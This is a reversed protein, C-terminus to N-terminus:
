YKQTTYDLADYLMLIRRVQVYSKNHFFLFDRMKPGYLGHEELEELALMERLKKISSQVLYDISARDGIPTSSAVQAVGYTGSKFVMGKVCELRRFWRPRQEVESLVMALILKRFRHSYGDTKEFIYIWNEQGMDRILSMILDHGHLRKPTMLSRMLSMFAAAFLGSWVSILLDKNDPVLVNLYNRVVTAFFASLCIAMLSLAHYIMVLPWTSVRPEALTDRMARFSTSYLYFLLFLTLALWSNGGVREILVVMFLVVIFVPTARFFLYSRIPNERVHEEITSNVSTYVEPWSTKMHRYLSSLVRAGAWAFLVTYIIEDNLLWFSRLYNYM